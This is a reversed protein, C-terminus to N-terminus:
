DLYQSQTLRILEVKSDPKVNANVLQNDERNYDFIMLQGDELLYFGELPGEGHRSEFPKYKDAYVDKIKEATDGVKAGLNTTFDAAIADIELVKGSDKGVILRIGQKYERSYWAEPFHGPEDYFTEQYDKGLIKEAQSFPDGLHINGLSADEKPQGQDGVPLDTGVQQGPKDLDANQDQPTQPAKAACGALLLVSALVILFRKFM